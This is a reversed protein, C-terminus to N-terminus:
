SLAHDGKAADMMSTNTPLGGVLLLQCDPFVQAFDPFTVRRDLFQGRHCKTGMSLRSPFIFLEGPQFLTESPTSLCARVYRNM